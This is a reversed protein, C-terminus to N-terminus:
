SSGDEDVEYEEITEVAYLCGAEHTDTEMCGCSM